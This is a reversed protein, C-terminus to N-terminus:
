RWTLDVGLQSRAEDVSMFRGNLLVGSRGQQTVLELWRDAIRLEQTVVQGPAGTRRVDVIGDANLDINEIWVKRETDYADYTIVKRVADFDYLVHSHEDNVSIGRPSAVFIPAGKKGVIIGGAEPNTSASVLYDGMRCVRVHHIWAGSTKEAEHAQDSGFFSTLDGSQCSPQSATGFRVFGLIGAATFGAIFAAITRVNMPDAISL